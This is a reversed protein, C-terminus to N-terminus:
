PVCISSLLRASIPGALMLAAQLREGAALKVDNFGDVKRTRDVCPEFAGVGGTSQHLIAMDRQLRRVAELGEASLSGRSAFTDFVDQRKARVLRNARDLTLAVDANLPSALAERSLGWTAPDHRQEREAARQRAAELPDAPRRRGRKATM